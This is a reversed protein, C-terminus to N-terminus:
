SPRRLKARRKEEWERMREALVKEFGQDGPRYFKEDRLGEPLCDMGTIGGEFDHAYEYGKGYDLDKMLSTPANRLHLPVPETHGERIRAVAEGYARYVANSKPATALYVAAQALALAGEPMGIFHVAQQAAM